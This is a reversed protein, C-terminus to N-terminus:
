SDEHFGGKWIFGIFASAILSAAMAIRKITIKRVARFDILTYTFANGYLSRHKQALKMFAAFDDANQFVQCGASYRDITFTSGVSRAHHINVGFIGKSTKDSKFNLVADRDYDRIINVPKVQVLATYKGAHKGIAYANIYQGAKLILTGQPNDPNELWFTGPDTTATFLHYNWKNKDTKYFVHIEDDFANAITNKSRLGVINLEYPRTFLKYKKSRLIAKIKSLVGGGKKERNRGYGFGPLV